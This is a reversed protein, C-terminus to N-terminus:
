PGFVIPGDWSPNPGGGGIRLPDGGNLAYRLLTTSPPDGIGASSLGITVVVSLGDPAFAVDVIWSDVSLEISLLSGASLLESARGLYVDASPYRGDASQPAGLWAGGWFALLDSDPGWAVRGSTFGAGGIPTLDAFLPQGSWTPQGDIPEGSVHPLGGSVFSWGSGPQEAMTGRWFIARSGDPSLLPLFIGDIPNDPRSGVPVLEVVLRETLPTTGAHSVYLVRQGEAGIIGPVFGAAYSNGADTLRTARQDNRNWLWVDTSGPAAAIRGCGSDPGLDVWTLTFALWFGGADWSLRETFPNSQSCGLLQTEGTVLSLVWTENAGTEGKQTIYALWAGDPSLAASIPPGSPPEAEISAGTRDNIFALRYGAFGGGTLSLYGLDGPELFPATASPGPSVSPPADSASATPATSSPSPSSGPPTFPLDGLALIVLAAAAVTALSAGMGVLWGPLRRGGPSSEVGARVRAGLDRPATVPRMGAVFRRQDAFAALTERCVACDALHADLTAREADTLDGTVSASLLEDPHSGRTRRIM